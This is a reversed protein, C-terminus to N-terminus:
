LLRWRSSSLLYSFSSLYVQTQVMSLVKVSDPIAKFRIRLHLLTLWILFCRSSETHAVSNKSATSPSSLSSLLSRTFTATLSPLLLSMKSSFLATNRSKSPQSNFGFYSDASRWIEFDEIEVIRLVKLDMALGNLLRWSIPYIFDHTSADAHPNKSRCTNRLHRFTVCSSMLFWTM